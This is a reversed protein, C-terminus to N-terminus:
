LRIVDSCALGVLQQVGHGKNASQKRRTLGRAQVPSWLKTQWINVAGPGWCCKPPRERLGSQVAVEKAPM